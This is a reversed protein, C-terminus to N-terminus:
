QYGRRAGTVIFWLAIGWHEASQILVRLGAERM